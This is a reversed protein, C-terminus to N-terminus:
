AICKTSAMYELLKNLNGNCLLWSYSPFCWGAGGGAPELSVDAGTFGSGGIVEVSGGGFLGGGGGRSFGWQTLDTISDATTVQVVGGYSGGVGAFAGYGVSAILGINGSGDIILLVQVSGGNGAGMVGGIGLGFTWFGSPDIMNVPNPVKM